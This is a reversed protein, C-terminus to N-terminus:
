ESKEITVKIKGYKALAEKLEKLMKQLSYMTLNTKKEDDFEYIKIPENKKM